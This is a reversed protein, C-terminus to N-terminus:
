SKWPPTDPLHRDFENVLEEEYAGAYTGGFFKDLAEDYFRDWWSEEQGPIVPFFLADNDKAAKHDGPADGIMLLKNPGYKGKAAFSIHESKTGLEQGAIFRVYGDIKNEDWERILAESPTQSVVIADARERIRELSERVIPFPPVNKVLDAIRENVEISWRYCQTMEATPNQEVEAKLVPNGLKTERKTWGLLEELLPVAVNRAQVEAREALLGVVQLVAHFRNCGRSKSYLNVFEWGERAYKSIAQLEFHKIFAPCFCEKHKIEMSDFACGDSDIGVFFEKEPKFSKLAEVTYEM